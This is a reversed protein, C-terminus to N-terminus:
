KKFTVRVRFGTGDQRGRSAVEISAGHLEAIRQVISLGLGSGPASVMKGRVFRNFLAPLEQESIGPGSDFVEFYTAEGEPQAVTLQITGRDPTYRIANNVLNRILIGLLFFNGTVYGHTDALSLDQKKDLAVAAEESVIEAVLPRIDFHRVDSLEHLQDLRALELLQSILRAMRDVASLSKQVAQEREATMSADRIVELQAKLGAIPTRLEHAADSTFRRENELTREIRALLSNLSEVLPTTELPVSHTDFPKLNDEGREAVQVALRLLPKLGRSVGFAVIFSSLPILFLLPAFISAAAKRSLEERVRHKQGVTVLWGSARHELTFTEWRVGNLDLSAYGEKKIQSFDPAEPVSRALMRGNEDHVVYVIEQEYKHALPWPRAAHSSSGPTQEPARPAYLDSLIKAAQALEADFIEDFEHHADRYIIAAAIAWTFTLIPLIFLLLLWRLSRPRLSTSSSLAM